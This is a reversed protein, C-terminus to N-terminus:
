LSVVRRCSGWRMAVSTTDMRSRRRALGRVQRRYRGVERDLEDNAFSDFRSPLFARGFVFLIWAFIGKLKRARSCPADVDAAMAAVTKMVRLIRQRREIGRLRRTRGCDLDVDHQGFVSLRDDQMIKGYVSRRDTVAERGVEGELLDASSSAPTATRDREEGSCSYRCHASASSQALRVVHAITSSILSASRGSRATSRTAASRSAVPVEIPDNHDAEVMHDQFRATSRWGPRCVSAIVCARWASITPTSLDHPAFSRRSRAQCTGHRHHAPAAHRLSEAVAHVHGAGVHEGFIPAAATVGQRVEDLPDGVSQDVVMEPSSTGNM